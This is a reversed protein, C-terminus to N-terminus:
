LRGRSSAAGGCTSFSDMKPSTMSALVSCRSAVYTWASSFKLLTWHNPALSFSIGSVFTLSFVNPHIENPSSVVSFTLRRTTSAQKEPKRGRERAKIDQPNISPQTKLIATQKFSVARHYPGPLDPGNLEIGLSRNLYPFARARGLEDETKGQADPHWFVVSEWNRSKQPV